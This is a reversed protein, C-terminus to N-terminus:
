QFGEEVAKGEQGQFNSLFGEGEPCRPPKTMLCRVEAGTRIERNTLELGADPSRCYQKQYFM